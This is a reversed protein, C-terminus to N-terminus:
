FILEGLDNDLIERIKEYGKGRGRADKSILTNTGVSVQTPVYSTSAAGPQLSSKFKQESTETPDIKSTGEDRHSQKQKLCTRASM